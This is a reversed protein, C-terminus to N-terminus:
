QTILAELARSLAQMQPSRGEVNSVLLVENDPGKTAHFVYFGRVSGGVGVTMGTLRQRYEEDLFGPARAFAYFRRLDNLTSYMGGSGMVLWSTPGWNPPINPLGVTSEGHGVAFDELTLGGADGYMGTRQMGAPELLVESICAYYGKGCVIELIAAALGYASHSHARRAGPEFLLPQSLIRAVATDRDIWALDADWDGPLDHFDPLGSRGELLHRVTMGQKDAPVGALFATLPADLNIRDDTALKHLAVITFDIPTSGIGFVTDASIDTGLERNAKGWARDLVTEGERRILVAGSFGQGAQEELAAEVGDWTLEIAPTLMEARLSTIAHPPAPDVAFTVALSDRGHLEMVIEGDRESLMVGGAQAAARRIDLLVARRADAPTSQRYEPALHNANFAAIFEDAPREHSRELAQVHGMVASDRQVAEQAQLQLPALLTVLGTAIYRRSFGRMM